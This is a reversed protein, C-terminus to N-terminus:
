KAAGARQEDTVALNAAHGARYNVTNIAATALSSRVGQILGVQQGTAAYSMSNDGQFGMTTGTLLVDQNAALFLFQWNYKQTQEEIMSKIKNIGYERSSNEQGGTIVVFVVKDPREHEPMAALWQGTKTIMEGLADHLPTGGRPIYNVINLNDAQQIDVRDQTTVCNPSGQSSDFQVLTLTAKNPLEKQQQLFTNFGGITDYRILQM